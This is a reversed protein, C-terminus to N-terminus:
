RFGRGSGVGAFRVFRSSIARAASRRARGPRPVPPRGRLPVLGPGVSSLGRPAGTSGGLDARLCVRIPTAAWVSGRVTAAMYERRM